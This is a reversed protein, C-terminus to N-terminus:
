SRRRLILERIARRWISGEALSPRWRQVISRVPAHRSAIRQIRATMSGFM